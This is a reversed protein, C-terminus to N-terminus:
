DLIMLVNHPTLIAKHRRIGTNANNLLIAVLTIQLPEHLHLLSQLQSLRANPFENNLDKKSQVADVVEFNHM